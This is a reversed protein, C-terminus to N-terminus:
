RECQSLENFYFLKKGEKEQQAVWSALRNPTRM